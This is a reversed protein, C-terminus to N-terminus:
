QKVNKCDEAQAPAPKAKWEAGLKAKFKQVEELYHPRNEDPLSLIVKENAANQAKVKDPLEGAPIGCLEATTPAKYALPIMSLALEISSKNIDEAKENLQQAEKLVDDISEAGATGACLITGLLIMALLNLKMFIEM